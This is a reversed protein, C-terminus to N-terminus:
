VVIEVDTYIPWPGRLTLVLDILMSVPMESGSPTQLNRIFDHLETQFEESSEADQQDVTEQESPCSDSAVTEDVEPVTVSASSASSAPLIRKIYQQVDPLLIRSVLVATYRVHSTFWKNFCFKDPLTGNKLLSCHCWHGYGESSRCRRRHHITSMQVGLVVATGQV